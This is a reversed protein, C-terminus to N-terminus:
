APTSLFAVAQRLTALRPYDDEDIRHGTRASLLEVLQLFDLSDLNLTERLDADPALAALDADPAIEHLATRILRETDDPTM